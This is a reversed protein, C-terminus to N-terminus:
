GRSRSRPCTALTHPSPASCPFLLPQIYQKFGSRNRPSFRGERTVRWPVIAHSCADINWARPYQWALINEEDTRQNSRHAALASLMVQVLATVCCGFLFPSSLISMVAQFGFRRKRGFIFGPIVAAGGNNGSSQFLLGSLSPSLTSSNVVCSRRTHSLRFHVIAAQRTMGRYCSTLSAASNVSNAALVYVSFIHWIFTLQFLVPVNEGLCGM